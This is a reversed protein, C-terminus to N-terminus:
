KVTLLRNGVEIEKQSVPNITDYADSNTIVIPSTIDYGKNTIADIDFTCLLQGTEVDEDKAVNLEFVNEKIDVTDLGIHLLIEMGTGTTIGIAHGTPFVTTVKGNAPAYLKGNRPYIAIGKGVAETAFVEDNLESLPRLEGALPSSLHTEEQQAPKKSDPKEMESTSEGYLKHVMEEKYGFLYTLVFGGAYSILLGIIYLLYKNDAILPILVVGSPGVTIAGVKFLSLFAGGFGAGLCATIFPRGLPLSVGYILPEGIGLFGVPLVSAVTNKLRKNKAKIYIAIMAGVQGGGAMALIPLLTTSGFKDILELHVPILGQHMGVTVLPLFTAALVYGGIIGGAQLMVDVLFWTIGDMLLGALPQIVVITVISGIMVTILPTLVLDLSDAMRKRTFKEIQTFLYAAVIVGLLGGLGSSLQLTLGFLNLSGVDGLVPAYILLGAIGGLVMTGGFERATNIGVFVGLSGFLLNGIAKLLMYWDTELVAPDLIGADPNALNTILNAIGLMLGSAVLGPVIPVFINGIHRFLQQFMSTQKAKYAAKTDSAMDFESDDGEDEVDVDIATNEHIENAVKTVKGPGLVIQITGQDLVSLVGELQKIAELDVNSRSKLDIRLRTICNTLNTINAEGGLNEVITQALKQNNM